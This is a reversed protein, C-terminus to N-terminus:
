GRLQALGTDGVTDIVRGGTYALTVRAIVLQACGETDSHIELGNLVAGEGQTVAISGLLDTGALVLDQLSDLGENLTVLCPLINALAQGLESGLLDLSLISLICSLIDSGKKEM